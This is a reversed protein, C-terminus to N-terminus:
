ITDDSLQQLLAGYKFIEAFAFAIIAQIISSMKLYVNVGSDVEPAGVTFIGVQVLAVPFVSSVLAIIVDAILLFGLIKLRNAQKLTFPSDGRAIDRFVGSVVLFAALVIMDSFLKAILPAVSEISFMDEQISTIGAILAGVVNWAFFLVALIILIKRLAGAHKRIAVLDKEIIRM